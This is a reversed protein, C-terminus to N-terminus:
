NNQYLKFTDITHKILQLDSKIKANQVQDIVSLKWNPELFNDYVIAFYIKNGIFSFNIESKIKEKLYLLNNMIDTQLALRSGIQDDSYVDFIEMFRPSELKVRQANKDNSYNRYFCKKDYLVTTGSFVFPFSAWGFLGKFYNTTTTRTKGDMDSTTEEKSASLESLHLNGFDRFAILDEGSYRNHDRSFFMSQDFISKDIFEFPKYECDPYVERVIAPTLNTKFNKCFNNHKSTLIVFFIIFSAILTFLVMFGSKNLLSYLIFVAIPILILKITGITQVFNLRQNEIKTIADTPTSTNNNM